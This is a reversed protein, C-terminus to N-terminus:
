DREKKKEEKTEFLSWIDKGVDKNKKKKKKSIFPNRINETKPESCKRGWGYMTQKPTNAKLLSAIKEKFGGVIKRISEPIYRILRDYWTNKIPRIKNMEKQEFKEM